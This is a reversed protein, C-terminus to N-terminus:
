INWFDRLISFRLTQFGCFHKQVYKLFTKSGQVGPCFFSYDENTLKLAKEHDFYQKFNGLFCRFRSFHLNALGPGVPRPTALFLPKIDRM